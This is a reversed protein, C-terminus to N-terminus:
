EFRPTQELCHVGSGRLVQLSAFLDRVPRPVPFFVMLFRGGSVSHLWGSIFALDAHIDIVRNKKFSQKFQVLVIPM